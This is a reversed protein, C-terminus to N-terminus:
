PSNKETNSKATQLESLALELVSDHGSRFDAITPIILKDPQIGKGIWEGGDFFKARMTCIRATGGGPLTIFLPQGTSGGTPEGIIVGRKMEKYAVMFDEAASFTRPSTLVAVPKSYFRKGDPKIEGGSEGYPEQVREWARFSPRYQRTQWSWIKSPKDTLFSLIKWGVTSNGGGNDRVDIILADSKAIEDFREEFMQAARDDNFSNLAVYAVNGTLMKFDFPPVPNDALLKGREAPTLRNLTKKFTNGGSDKITLEVPNKSSGSLLQYQYVNVDLNPKTSASQYPMVNKEAYQRVPVGDIETIEQGVEIGSARLAPDFIKIILVKDEILRTVIAPRAYVEPQLEKPVYVETHGDHLKATMERLLNYYELNSKTNRVRPLYEIFMADWNVEPVLDFNAFNNKVESWLKSLGAIKEDDSLNEKFATDWVVGNWFDKDNWFQKKQEAQAKDLISQWRSDGHLSNLDSDTKIHEVNTYGRAISQELYRFAEEAKGALAFYCAANYFNIANQDGAEISTVLKQAKLENENQAPVSLSLLALAIFLLLVNFKRKM